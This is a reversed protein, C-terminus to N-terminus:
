RNWSKNFITSWFYESLDFHYASKLYNTVDHNDSSAGEVTLLGTYVGGACDSGQLHTIKGDYNVGDYSLPTPTPTDSGCGNITRWVEAGNLASSTKPQKRDASDTSRGNYLVVNDNVAHVEMVPVLHKYKGGPKDGVKYTADCTDASTNIPFSVAAMASVLDPKECVFKHAMEAGNSFGHVYVRNRIWAGSDVAQIVKEIFDIDDEAHTFSYGCCSYGDWSSENGNRYAEPWVAIFGRQESMELEGSNDKEWKAVAASSRTDNSYGHLDVLLPAHDTKSHLASYAVPVHILYKRQTTPEILEADCPAMKGETVSVVESRTYGDAVAVAKLTQGGTLTVPGQYLHSGDNPRSGDLTYYISANPTDETITVAQVADCSAAAPQGNSLKPTATPGTAHASPLLVTCQLTILLGGLLLFMTKNM